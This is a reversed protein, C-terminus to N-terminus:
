GSGDEKSAQYGFRKEKFVGESLYVSKAIRDREMREVHSFWWLIGEDLGKKVRCSERIWGRLNDMQVARVRVVLSMKMLGKIM